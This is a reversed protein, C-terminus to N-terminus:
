VENRTRESMPSTTCIHKLESASQAWTNWHRRDSRGKSKDTSWELLARALVDPEMGSFYFPGEGAVERYIPMDRLVLPMDLWGAEAVPLGYGEGHSPSLLADCERYLGALARDDPGDVWHLRRGFEPHRRIRGLLSQVNWGAKGAIIWHM